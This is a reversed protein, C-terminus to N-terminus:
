QVDGASVGPPLSQPLYARGAFARMRGSSQVVLGPLEVSVPGRARRAAVAGVYADFNAGLLQRLDPMTPGQWALGFVMGGPAVYQRVLTGSRAQLEHMTFRAGTVTRLLTASMQSQDAFVSAEAAGLAAHAPVATAADLALVSALSAVAHRLPHLINM